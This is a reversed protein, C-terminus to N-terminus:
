YDEEGPQSETIWGSSDPCIECRIQTYNPNSKKKLRGDPWPESDPDDILSPGGPGDWCGWPHEKDKSCECVVGEVFGKPLKVEWGDRRLKELNERTACERCWTQWVEISGLDASSGPYMEQWPVMKRATVFQHYDAKHAFMAGSCDHATTYCDDGDCIVSTFEGM